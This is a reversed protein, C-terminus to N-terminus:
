FFYPYEKDFYKVSFIYFYEGKGGFFDFRVCIKMGKYNNWRAEIVDYGWHGEVYPDIFVTDNILLEDPKGYLETYESIQSKAANLCLTFNEQDIEYVYHSFGIVDIKGEEFNYNWSDAIGFITDAREYTKDGQYESYDLNPFVNLLQKEDMGIKVGTQAFISLSFTIGTLILFLTRM